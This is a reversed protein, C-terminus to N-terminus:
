TFLQEYYDEDSPDPGEYSGSTQPTTQLYCFECLIEPQGEYAASGTDSAWIEETSLVSGCETCHTSDDESTYYEVLQAGFGPNFFYQTM